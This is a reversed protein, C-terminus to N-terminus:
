VRKLFNYFMNLVEIVLANLSAAFGTAILKAYKAFFADYQTTQYMFGILFLRFIIVSFVAGLVVTLMTLVVSFSLTIRVAKSFVTLYPENQQTLPNLRKSKVETMYESRIEEEEEVDFLDWEWKLISQQRKWLELFSAAWIIMFISFAITALNDFLYTVKSLFCSDSLKWYDCYVDCQPCMTTNGSGVADCIDLSSQNLRTNITLLGFVFTLLGIVTPIVLMQTYFGIWAFYLGVKAGFYNRILWLPQKKHWNKVSAWEDYLLQLILLTM